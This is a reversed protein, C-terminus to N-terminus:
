PQRVPPLGALRVDARAPDPVWDHLVAAAGLRGAARAARWLMVADAPERQTAWQERALALARAADGDVDLALRAEERLHPPDGRLRAAALNERLRAAVDAARADGLRHWAIARRLRLADAQAPGADLVRLAQADRGRALLWDAQAALAYVDGAAAAAAFHREAATDDGQREALEARLLSLWPDGAAAALLADLARAAGRPDGTLSRLEWLCASAAEQAPAGLAAFDPRQQLARCDDAAGGLDGRLQRLSARTLLAQARVAVPVAPATALADLDAGAADFHHRSQLITARLLRVAPPPEPAQWWPALAAQAAGLERPDGLRRAREIGDRAAALALPLQRPDRALAARRARQAGDARPPLREVVEDDSAPVRPIASAPLAGCLCLLAALLAKPCSMM